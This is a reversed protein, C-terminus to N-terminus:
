NYVNSTLINNSVNRIYIVELIIKNNNITITFSFILNLLAHLIVTYHTPAHQLIVTYHPMSYYSYIFPVLSPLSLGIHVRFIYATVYM